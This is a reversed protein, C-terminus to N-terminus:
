VGTKREFIMKEEPKFGFLLAKELSTKKGSFSLDLFRLLSLPVLFPYRGQVSLMLDSTVNTQSRLKLYEGNDYFNAYCSLVGFLQYPQRAFINKLQIPSLGLKTRMIEFDLNLGMGSHGIYFVIPSEEVANKLFAWHQAKGQPEDTPGFYTTLEIKKGSRKLIGKNHILLHTGADEITPTELRVFSQLYSTFYLFAWVAQDRTVMESPTLQRHELADASKLIDGYKNFELIADDLSKRNAAQSLLGFIVDVRLEPKDQLFKFDVETHSESEAIFDASTLLYDKGSLLIKKCDFSDHGSDNGEAFPQWVYWYMTPFVLEAMEPDACPNTRRKVSGFQVEARAKEPVLWFALYPDYPLAITINASQCAVIKPEAVYEITIAADSEAVERSRHFSPPYLALNDPQQDILVSKGYTTDNVSLIEINNDRNGILFVELDKAAGKAFFGQIYQLQMEVAKEPHERLHFFNVFDSHVRVRGRFRM